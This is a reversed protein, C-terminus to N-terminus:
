GMDKKGPFSGSAPSAGAHSAISCRIMGRVLSIPLRCTRRASGVTCLPPQDPREDEEVPHSRGQELGALRQVHPRMRMDPKRGDGVQEVALDLMAVTQAGFHDDRGAVEVQHRRATANHM